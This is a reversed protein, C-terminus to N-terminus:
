SVAVAQPFLARGNGVPTLSFYRPAAASGVYISGAGTATMTLVVPTDVIDATPTIYSWWACPQNFLAGGGIFQQSTAWTAGALNTKRVRFFASITVLAMHAQGCEVRYTVGRELTASPITLVVAEATITASNSTSAATFRASSPSNLFGVAYNGAPPVREVMVRDGVVLDGILSVVTIGIDDGDMLVSAERPTYPSSVFKVVGPRLGWTLGLRDAAKILETVRALDPSGQATEDPM